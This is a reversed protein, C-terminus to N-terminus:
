RAYRRHRRRRNPTAMAPSGFSAGKKKRMKMFVVGGIALIAIGIGVYMMTNSQAAPVVMGYEPRPVWKGSKVDNVYNQFQGVISSLGNQKAWAQFDQMWANSNAGCIWDQPIAVGGTVKASDMCNGPTFTAGFGGGYGGIPGPFIGEGVNMQGTVAIPYMDARQAVGMTRPTLQSMRAVPRPMEAPVDHLTPVQPVKGDGDCIVPSGFISNGYNM